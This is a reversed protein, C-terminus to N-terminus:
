GSDTHVVIESIESKLAAAPALLRRVLVARLHRIIRKIIQDCFRPEHIAHRTTTKRCATTFQSSSSSSLSRNPLYTDAVPDSDQRGLLATDQTRNMASDDDDLVDDYLDLLLSENRAAYQSRKDRYESQM